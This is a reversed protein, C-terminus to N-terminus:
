SRVGLAARGVAVGSLELVFRCARTVNADSPRTVDALHNVISRLFHDRQPPPLLGAAATVQRLQADTLSLIDSSRWSRAGARGERERRDM